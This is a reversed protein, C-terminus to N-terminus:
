NLTNKRTLASRCRWLDFSLCASVTIVTVLEASATLFLFASQKEHQLIYLCLFYKAVHQKLKFSLMTQKGTLFGHAKWTNWSGTAHQSHRSTRSRLSRLSSLLNLVSQHRLIMPSGLVFPLPLFLLPTFKIPARSQDSMLSYFSILSLFSFAFDKLSLAM